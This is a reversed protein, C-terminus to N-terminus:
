YVKFYMPAVADTLWVGNESCYFQHGDASMKKADIVLIVLKGHRKGVKEATQLDASLHVHHRSQRTLGKAQISPLFRTATGHYLVDPPTEAALSLDIQVSHGQNARIRDGDESLSFRQKDNDRVAQAIRERTLQKGQKRACEILEDVSAWGQANLQLGISDPKHRLVYSLFKSVKVIEQNM